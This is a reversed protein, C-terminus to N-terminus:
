FNLFMYPNEYLRRVLYPVTDIFNGFPLYKYVVRNKNLLLNSLDDSM